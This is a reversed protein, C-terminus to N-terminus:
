IGDNEYFAAMTNRAKLRDASALHTYIRHMTATDSWGGVEMTQQESWGLHYALSAFSHRLGHVGVPPLGNAECTRNIRAWITNPNCTVLLGKKPKVAALAERLAPIMIPVMRASSKNKNTAKQVLKQNEDFVAAGSVKITNNKLDIKDWTLAMIESRRLGHLALLAPIEHPQGDLAAIFTKLQEPELWPHENPVVQPLVIKPPEIGNERLVSCVFRWTNRVTKPARIQAEENMVAQWNRISKLKKYMVSSMYNNRITRYGRLTSPSLTNSKNSIYNDIAKGLTLNATLKEPDHKGAMHEAKILQAKITCESATEASVPISKGGLRLQIFYTGSDLQRPKPVKM